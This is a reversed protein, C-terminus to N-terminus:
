LEGIRESRQFRSVESAKFGEKGSQWETGAGRPVSSNFVKFVLNRLKAPKLAEFVV